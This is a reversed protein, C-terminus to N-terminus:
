VYNHSIYDSVISDFQLVFAPGHTQERQSIGLTYDCLVGATGTINCISFYAITGDYVVETYPIITFKASKQM